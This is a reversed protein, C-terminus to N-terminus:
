FLSLAELSIFFPRGFAVEGLFPGYIQWNLLALFSTGRSQVCLKLSKAIFGFIVKTPGYIGSMILVSKSLCLSGVM